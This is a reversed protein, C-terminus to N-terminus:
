QDKKKTKTKEKRSVATVMVICKNCRTSQMYYIQQISRSSEGQQLVEELILNPNGADIAYGERTGFTCKFKGYHSIAYLCQSARNCDVMGARERLYKYTKENECTFKVTSKV